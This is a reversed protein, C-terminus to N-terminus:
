LLKGVQKPIPEGEGGVEIYGQWMLSVIDGPEHFRLSSPSARALSQSPMRSPLPGVSRRVASLLNLVRGGGAAGLLRFRAWRVLRHDHRSQVKTTSACAKM